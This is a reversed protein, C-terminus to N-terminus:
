RLHVELAGEGGRDVRASVVLQVQPLKHLYWSLMPRIVPGDSSHLGKGTVILVRKLGRQASQYIFDQALRQIDEERLKGLGHFDFEAQPDNLTAYKDHKRKRPKKAM